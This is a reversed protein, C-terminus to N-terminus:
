NKLRYCITKINITVLASTRVSYVFRYTQFFRLLWAEKSEHISVDNLYINVETRLIKVELTRGLVYRKM